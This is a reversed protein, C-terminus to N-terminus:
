KDDLRDAIQYNIVDLVGGVLYLSGTVLVHLEKQSPAYSKELDLVTKISENISGFVELTSKHEHGSTGQSSEFQSWLTRMSQQLAINSSTLGAANVQQAERTQSLTNSQDKKKLTVKSATFFIYDFDVNKENSKTFKWIPELLSQPDRPPNCNFVLIRVVKEDKLKQDRTMDAVNVHTVEHKLDDRDISLEEFARGEAITGDNHVHSDEGFWSLCHEMARTTHAGDIFFYLGTDKMRITQARGPWECHKLGKIFEKSLPFVHYKPLTNNYDTHSEEVKPVSPEIPSAVGRDYKLLWENALAVAMSANVKQFDGALGLKFKKSTVGLYLSLPSTVRLSTHVKSAKEVLVPMTEAIQPVTLAPSREKMIGAKEFAIEQISNGLVNMHDYDLTTIGCVAPHTLVNTPDARGGMGVEVVLCQVKEEQFIRYMLMTLFRFYNPDTQLPTKTAELMDWCEWFYKTFADESIPKGNIKIRERVTVLHPSTYLGTTFGHARVVSEVMACTSGKGKTGAVHISKASLADIDVRLRTMYQRMEEMLLSTLDLHRSKAWDAITAANSQLQNLVRLADQYSRTAYEEM